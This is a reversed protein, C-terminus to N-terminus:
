CKWTAHLCRFVGVWNAMTVCKLSLSLVIKLRRKATTTNFLWLKNWRQFFANCKDVALEDTTDKRELELSVPRSGKTNKGPGNGLSGGVPLAWKFCHSCIVRVRRWFLSQRLSGPKASVSRSDTRRLRKSHRYWNLFSRQFQLKSPLPLRSFLPLNVRGDLASVM